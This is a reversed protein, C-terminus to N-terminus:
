GPAHKGGSSTLSNPIDFSIHFIMHDGPNDITFRANVLAWIRAAREKIRQRASSRALSDEIPTAVIRLASSASPDVENVAAL